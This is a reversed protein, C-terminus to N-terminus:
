RGDHCIKLATHNLNNLHKLKLISVFELGFEVSIVELLKELAFLPWM